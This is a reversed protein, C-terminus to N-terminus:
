VNNNGKFGLNLLDITRTLDSDIYALGGKRIVMNCVAELSKLKPSTFGGPIVHFITIKGKTDASDIAEAISYVGSMKSTIVYLHINCNNDKENIEREQCEPTWDDVVPNFYNIQIGDILEDRWTSIACTGGLFVKTKL